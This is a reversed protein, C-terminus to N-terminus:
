DPETYPRDPEWSRLGSPNVSEKVVVTISICSAAAVVVASCCCIIHRLKMETPVFVLWSGRVVVVWILVASDSVATVSSRVAAWCLPETCRSWSLEVVNKTDRVLSVGSSRCLLATLPAHPHAWLVDVSM